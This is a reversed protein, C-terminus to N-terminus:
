PRIVPPAKHPMKMYVDGRALEDLMQNLRKAKTDPRKARTIWSLYDNQQYAPRREYAGLLDHDTLAELVFEPMPQTPRSLKCFDTTSM